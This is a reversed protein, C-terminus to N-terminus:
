SALIERTHKGNPFKRANYPKGPIKGGNKASKEYPALELKKTERKAFATYDFPVPKHVESKKESAKPKKVGSVLYKTYQRQRSQISM